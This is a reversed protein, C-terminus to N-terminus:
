GVGFLRVRDTELVLLADGAHRRSGGSPFLARARIRHKLGVNNKVSAALIFILLRWQPVQRCLLALAAVRTAM